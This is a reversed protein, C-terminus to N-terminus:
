VAKEGDVSQPELNEVVEVAREDEKGQSEDVNIVSQRRWPMASLWLPKHQRGEADKVHRCMTRIRYAITTAYADEDAEQIACWMVKPGHAQEEAKKDQLIIKSASKMETQRWSLPEFEKWLAGLMKKQGVILVPEVKSNKVKEGYKIWSPVTFFPYLAKILKDTGNTCRQRPRPIEPEPETTDLDLSAM